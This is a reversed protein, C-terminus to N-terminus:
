LGNVISAVADLVAMRLANALGEEIEATEIADNFCGPPAMAAAPSSLSLWHLCSPHISSFHNLISFYESAM